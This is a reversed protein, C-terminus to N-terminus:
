GISRESLNQELRFSLSDLVDQLLTEQVPAFANVKSYRVLASTTLTGGCKSVLISKLFLSLVAYKYNCHSLLRSRRCRSTFLHHKSNKLTNIYRFNVITFKPSSRMCWNSWDLDAESGTTFALKHDCTLPSSVLLLFQKWMGLYMIEPHLEISGILEELPYFPGFALKTAIDKLGQGSARSKESYLARCAHQTFHRSRKAM